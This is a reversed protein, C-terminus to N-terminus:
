WTFEEIQIQPWHQFITWHVKIKQWKWEWTWHFNPNKGLISGEDIQIMNESFITWLKVHINAKNWESWEFRYWRFRYDWYLCIYSIRFWFSRLSFYFGFIRSHLLLLLKQFHNFVSCLTFRCPTLAFVRSLAVITNCLDKLSVGHPQKIRWNLWSQPWAWWWGKTKWLLM